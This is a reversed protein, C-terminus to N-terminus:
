DLQEMEVNSNKANDMSMSMGQQVLVLKQMPAKLVSALVVIQTEKERRVLVMVNLIVLM